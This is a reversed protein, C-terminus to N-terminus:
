IPPFLHRATHHEFGRCALKFSPIPRNVLMRQPGDLRLPVMRLLAYQFRQRGVPHSDTQSDIIQYGM